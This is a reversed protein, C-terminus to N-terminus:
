ELASQMRRRVEVVEAIATDPVGAARAKEIADDLLAVEEAQAARLSATMEEFAEFVDHLEDGDRLRGQANWHGDRVQRMLDKLRYAPGVLRHTVLIGTFGLTIAMLLVGGVIAGLVKRDEARAYNEMDQVFEASVDDGAAAVQNVSMMETQGTSYGYAFWGLVAAVVLTVGVVMATYKLQFRPQLLLNRFRRQYRGTPPTSSPAQAATM